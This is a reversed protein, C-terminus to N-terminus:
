YGIATKQEAVAQELRHRDVVCLDEIKVRMKFPKSRTEANARCVVAM